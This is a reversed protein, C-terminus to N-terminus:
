KGRKAKSIEVAALQAQAAKKSKPKKSLPRGSKTTAKYGGKVKKIKENLDLAARLEDKSNLHSYKEWVDSQEGPSLNPLLEEVDGATLNGGYMSLQGAAPSERHRGAIGALGSVKAAASGYGGENQMETDIMGELGPVDGEVGLQSLLQKLAMQKTDGPMDQLMGVIDDLEPALDGFMGALDKLTGSEEEEDLTITIEEKILQKLQSRSIKM